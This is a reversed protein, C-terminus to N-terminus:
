AVLLHPDGLSYLGETAQWSEKHKGLLSIAYTQMVSRSPSITYPICLQSAVLAPFVPLSIRKLLPHHSQQRQKHLRTYKYLKQECLPHTQLTCKSRWPHFTSYLHLNFHSSGPNWSSPFQRYEKSCFCGKLALLHHNDRFLINLRKVCTALLFDMSFFHRAYQMHLHCDAPILILAHNFQSHLFLSYCNIEESPLVHYHM